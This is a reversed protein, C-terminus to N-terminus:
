PTYNTIGFRGQEINKLNISLQKSNTKVSYKSEAQFIRHSVLLM